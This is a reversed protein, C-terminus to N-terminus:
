MLRRPAVRGDDLVEGVGIFGDPGFLRVWGDTPANPVLVPQGQRMYFTSDPNLRVEPWHALATEIPLLLADLMERGNEGQAELDTVLARGLGQGQSDPRVVLPHLEWVHGDYQRIGGIWGLVKGKDNIAARIIREPHLMELVEQLGEDITSWSGPWNEAFALQLIQAM